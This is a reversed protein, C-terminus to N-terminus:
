PLCLGEFEDDRGAPAGTMFIKFGIAGEDAMARIESRDLLGPAGYLAFNVYADREGLAKRSRFIDGTACCPKSIPMEFITTVGGAAAARTETAFDGRDPYAPARCHFHIDIAGPIVLAGAADITTQAEVQSGRPLLAAIRGDHIAIDLAEIGKETVVDGQTILTEFIM